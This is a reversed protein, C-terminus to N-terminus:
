VHVSRQHVVSPSRQFLCFCERVLNRVMFTKIDASCFMFGAPVFGILFRGVLVLHFGEYILVRIVDIGPRQKSKPYHGSVVAFAM